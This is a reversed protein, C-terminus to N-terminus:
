FRRCPRPTRFLHTGQTTKTQGEATRREDQAVTQLLLRFVLREVNDYEAKM